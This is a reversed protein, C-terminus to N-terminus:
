GTSVVGEHAHASERTFVWETTGGYARDANPVLSFGYTCIKEAIASVDLFQPHLEAAIVEVDNLWSPTGEYILPGEGGEIDMKLLAVPGPAHQLVDTMTVMPVVLGTNQDDVVHGEGPREDTTFSVEGRRPGVAAEVIEFSISNAELNKRLVASNAPIPEVAVVREVGYRRSLWVSAMGINAGLDVLVGTPDLREPLRYVEFIFVERFIDLDAKNTRYFLVTGDDLELRRAREKIVMKPFLNPLRGVFADRAFTWKGVTVHRVGWLADRVAEGASEVVRRGSRLASQGGSEM